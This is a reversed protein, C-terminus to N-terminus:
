DMRGWLYETEIGYRALFTMVQNKFIEYNMSGQAGRPFVIRRLEPKRKRPGLYWVAIGDGLVSTGRDGHRKVYAKTLMAWMEQAKEIIHAVKALDADRYVTTEKGHIIEKHM